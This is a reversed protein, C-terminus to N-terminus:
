AQIQVVRLQTGAHQPDHALTGTFTQGGQGVRGTFGQGYPQCLTRIQRQGLLLCEKHARARRFRRSAARITGPEAAPGTQGKRNGRVAQAMGKSGMQQGRARIQTAHLFQQPVSPQGGRLAIGLDTQFMQDTSIILSM